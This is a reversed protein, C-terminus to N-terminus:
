VPLFPPARSFINPYYSSIHIHETVDSVQSIAIDTPLFLPLSLISLINPNKIHFNAKDRNLVQAKLSCDCVKSISAELSEHKCRHHICDCNSDDGACVVPAWASFSLHVILVFLILIKPFIQSKYVQEGM